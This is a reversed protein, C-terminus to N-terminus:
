VTTLSPWQIKRREEPSCSKLAVADKICSLYQANKSEPTSYHSLRHTGEAVLRARLEPDSIVKAIVAGAQVPDEPDLYLAAEGCASRAWDADTALLPKRMRWAEVFNNSFSELRSFTGMSDCVSVLSSVDEQNVPGINHWYKRLNRREFDRELSATLLDSLPLTTVFVFDENHNRVLEEALSPLFQIRKNRNAGNLFLVRFGRRIGEDYGEAVSKKVKDLTVLASAAMKVTAVRQSPFGCLRVARDTLVETEFIWYDAQKTLARRYNDVWERKLRSVGQYDQWFDIEPYFLNSYACGNINILFGKAGLMAPGFLTFCVQGRQFFSRCRIEFLFRSLISDKVSVFSLGGIICSREVSSGSRVLIQFGSARNSSVLTALFSLANQLGGGDAIPLFNIIVSENM